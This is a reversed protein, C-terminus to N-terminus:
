FFGAEVLVQLCWNVEEDTFLSGYKRQVALAELTLEPHGCRVLADFGDSLRHRRALEKVTEVGGYHELNQILRKTPCSHALMATQAQAIAQAQFTQALTM